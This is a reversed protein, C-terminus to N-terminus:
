RNIASQSPNRTVSDTLNRSFFGRGKTQDILLKESIRHGFMFAYVGM